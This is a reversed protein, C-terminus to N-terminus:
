LAFTALAVIATTEDDALFKTLALTKKSKIRIEVTCANGM